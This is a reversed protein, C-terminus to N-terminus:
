YRVDEFIPQEPQTTIDTEEHIKIDLQSETLMALRMRLAVNMPM